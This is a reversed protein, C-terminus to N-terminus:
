ALWSKSRPRNWGEAAEILIIRIGQLWPRFPRSADFSPLARRARLYVEGTADEAFSSDDLMRRCLRQLDDRHLEFLAAFADSDGSRARELLGRAVEDDAPMPSTGKSRGDPRDPIPDYKTTGLRDEVGPKSTWTSVRWGIPIAPWCSVSDLSEALPNRDHGISVMTM